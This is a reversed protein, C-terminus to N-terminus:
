KCEGWVWSFLFEMLIPFGNKNGATDGAGPVCFASQLYKNFSHQFPFGLYMIEKLVSKKGLRQRKYSKIKFM